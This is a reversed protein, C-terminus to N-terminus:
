TQMPMASFPSPIWHDHRSLALCFSAFVQRDCPRNPALPTSATRSHSWTKWLCSSAGAFKRWLMCLKPTVPVQIVRDHFQPLRWYRWWLLNSFRPFTGWPIRISPHYPERSLQDICPITLQERKLKRSSIQVSRHLFVPSPQSGSLISTSPQIKSPPFDLLQEKLRWWRSAMHARGLSGHTRSVKSQEICCAEAEDRALKGQRAQM